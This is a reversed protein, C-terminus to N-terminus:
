FQPTVALWLRAGNPPRLGVWQPASGQGAFWRWYSSVEPHLSTAPETGTEGRWDMLGNTGEGWTTELKSHTYFGAQSLLAVLPTRPSANSPQCRCEEVLRRERWRHLNRCSHWWQRNTKLCASRCPSKHLMTQSSLHSTGLLMERREQSLAEQTQSTSSAMM